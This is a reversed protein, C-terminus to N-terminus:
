EREFVSQHHNYISAVLINIDTRTDTYENYQANICSQTLM